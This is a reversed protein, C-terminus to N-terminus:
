NGEFYYYKVRFVRFKWRKKVDSSSDKKQFIIWIKWRLDKEILIKRREGEFKRESFSNKWCERLKECGFFSFETSCFYNCVCVPLLFPFNVLLSFFFKKRPFVGSLSLTKSPSIKSEKEGGGGKSVISM